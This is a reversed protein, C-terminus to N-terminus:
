SGGPVVDHGVGRGDSREARGVRRLRRRYHTLATESVIEGRWVHELLEQKSVVTERARILYALVDLVKPQVAVPTGRCRLEFLDLDLEYDEFAFIM